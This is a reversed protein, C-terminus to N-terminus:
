VIGPWKVRGVCCGLLHCFLFFIGREIPPTAQFCLLEGAQFEAQM